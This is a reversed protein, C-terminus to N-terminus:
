YAKTIVVEKKSRKEYARAISRAVNIWDKNEVRIAIEPWGDRKLMEVIKKYSLNYVELLWVELVSRGSEDLLCQDPGRVEVRCQGIIEIKYQSLGRKELTKQIRVKLWESIRGCRKRAEPAFHNDTWSEKMKREERTKNEAEAKALLIQSRGVLDSVNKNKAIERVRRINEKTALGLIQCVKVAQTPSPARRGIELLLAEDAGAQVGVKPAQEANSSM